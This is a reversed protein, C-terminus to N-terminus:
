RRCERRWMDEMWHFTLLLNPLPHKLHLREQLVPLSKGVLRIVVPAKSMIPNGKLGKVLLQFQDSRKIGVQVGLINAEEAIRMLLIEKNPYTHGEMLPFLAVETMPRLLDMCVGTYDGEFKALSEGMSSKAKRKARCIKDVYKKGDQCWQKLAAEAEQETLGDTDPPPPGGPSLKCGGGRGKQPMM